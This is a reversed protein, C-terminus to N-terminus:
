MQKEFLILYRKTGWTWMGLTLILIIIQFLVIMFGEEEYEEIQIANWGEQNREIIVEEIDERVNRTFIGILGGSFHISDLKNIKGKMKISMHLVMITSFFGFGGKGSKKGKRSIGEYEFIQITSWGEKNRKLILKEVKYQINRNFVTNLRGAFYLSDLKNLQLKDSSFLSNYIKSLIPM